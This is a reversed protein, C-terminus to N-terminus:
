EPKAYLAELRQIMTEVSFLRKVDAKGQAILREKLNVDALVRNIGSLIAKSDKYNVVIANEGDSVFDNAIGSLTM